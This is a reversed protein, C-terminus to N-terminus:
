SLKQLWDVLLQWRQELWLLGKDVWNLLKELPHEIYSSSVVDAEISHDISHDTAAFQKIAAFNFFPLRQRDRGEVAKSERRYGPLGVGYGPHARFRRSGYPLRRQRQKRLSAVMRLVEVWFARVSYALGASKIPSRAIENAASMVVSLGSFSSLEPIAQEGVALRQAIEARIRQQQLDDLDKYVSADSLILVLRRTKRDSALSVIHVDRSRQFWAFRRLLGTRRGAIAMTQRISLAGRVTALVQAIADLSGAASGDELVQHDVSSEVPSEVPSEVSSAGLKEVRVAAIARKLHTMWQQSWRAAVQLPVLMWASGLVAGTVATAQTQRVARQHREVGKRYQRIALRLLKSQYPGSVM